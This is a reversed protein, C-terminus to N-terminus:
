DGWTLFKPRTQSERQLYAKFLKIHEVLEEAEMNIWEHDFRTVSNHLRRETGECQDIIKICLNRYSSALSRNNREHEKQTVYDGLMREMKSALMDHASVIEMIERDRSRYPFPKRPGNAASDFLEELLTIDDEMKTLSQGVKVYSKWDNVPTWATQAPYRIAFHRKKAYRTGKALDRRESGPTIGYSTVGLVSGDTAVLPGGSQGPVVDCDVELEIPGVGKLYGENFTIVGADLSNGVTAVRQDVVFSDALPLSQVDAAVEIQALDLPGAVQLSLPRLRRGATTKIILKEPPCDYIVHQNTVLYLTEDQKIFFGSGGGNPTRIVATAATVLMKIEDSFKKELAHSKPTERPAASDKKSPLASRTAAALSCELYIVGGPMPLMTGTLPKSDTKGPDKGYRIRVSATEAKPFAALIQGGSSGTDPDRTHVTYFVRSDDLSQTEPGLVGSVMVTVEKNLFDKKNDLLQRATFNQNALLSSSTLFILWGFQLFRRFSFALGGVM